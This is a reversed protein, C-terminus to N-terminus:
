DKLCRVSFRNTKYSGQRHCYADYSYLYRNWAYNDDEATSSWFISYYGLERYEATFPGFEGESDRFSAPLATFGFSDKAGWNPGIWSNDAKMLGGNTDLYNSFVTWESDSPLHCGTPCLNHPSTAAFWNYLKGFPTNTTSDGNVYCWVAATSNETKMNAWSTSDEMEIVASGDRYHSTKLNQKMWTQTGIKVTDYFNHEVDIIQALVANSLICFVLPCVIQGKHFLIRM